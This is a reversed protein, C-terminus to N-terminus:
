LDLNLHIDTESVKPQQRLLDMLVVSIDVSRGISPQKFLLQVANMITLVYLVIQQETDIPFTKSLVHYLSEDIFVATEVTINFTPKTTSNIHHDGNIENISEPQNEITSSLLSNDTTPSITTSSTITTSKSTTTRDADFYNKNSAVIDISRKQRTQNFINRNGNNNPNNMMMLSSSLKSHLDNYYHHHNHNNSNTTSGHPCEYHNYDNKKLVLHYHDHQFSTTTSQNNDNNNNTYSIIRKSTTEPIPNIM